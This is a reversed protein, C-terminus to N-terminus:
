RFIQGASPSGSLSPAVKGMQLFLGRGMLNDFHVGQIVMHQTNVKKTDQLVQTFILSNM